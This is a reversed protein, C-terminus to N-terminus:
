GNLSYPSARVISRFSVRMLHIHEWINVLRRRSRGVGRLLGHHMDFGVDVVIWLVIWIHRTSLQADAELFAVDNM